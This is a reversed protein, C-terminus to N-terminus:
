NWWVHKGESAEDDDYHMSSSVKCKIVQQMVGLISYLSVQNFRVGELASVQNLRDRHKPGSWKRLLGM